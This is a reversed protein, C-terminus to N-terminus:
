PVILISPIGDADILTADCPREPRNPVLCNLLLIIRGDPRFSSSNRLTTISIL